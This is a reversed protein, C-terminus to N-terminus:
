STRVNPRHQLAPNAPSINGSLPNAAVILTQSFVDTCGYVNTSSTKATYTGPTTYNHYVKAGKADNAAGSSAQGFDWRIESM